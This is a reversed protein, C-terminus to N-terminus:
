LLQHIFSINEQSQASLDDARLNWYMGTGEYRTDGTENIAAIRFARKFENIPEDSREM